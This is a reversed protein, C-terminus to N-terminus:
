TTAPNHGPHFPLVHENKWSAYGHCNKISKHEVVVRTRKSGQSVYVGWAHTVAHRVLSGVKSIEHQDLPTM